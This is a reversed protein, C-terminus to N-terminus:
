QTNAAAEYQAIKPRMWDPTVIRVPLNDVAAPAGSLADEFKLFALAQFTNNQAKLSSDRALSPSGESQEPHCSGGRLNGVTKDGIILAAGPQLPADGEVLFFGKRAINKYHMRATVEQGVYCGKTFSIVHLLDYGADMATIDDPAFDTTSDPIGLSLPSPAPPQPSPLEEGWRPSAPLPASSDSSQSRPLGWGLGGGIPSHIYRRWPLAAHRPDPLGGDGLTVQWEASVDRIAVKARLKYMSLRKILTAAHVSPTDILITAGTAVLFMDHLIKGQPSLLAAFQIRAESLKTVDQTLLGQLFPIRDDGTLELISRTM